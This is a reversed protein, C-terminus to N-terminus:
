IRSGFHGPSGIAIGTGPLPNFLKRSLTGLEENTMIKVVAAAAESSIGNRHHEIWSAGGSSLLIRKLEAVTLHAVKGALQSDLSRHLAETVQDEVFDARSIDGLSLAALADRAQRRVHDDRTGGVNLDGEKFKNALAFIQGLQNRAM